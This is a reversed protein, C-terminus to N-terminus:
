KELLAMHLLEEELQQWVLQEAQLHTMLEKRGTAETMVQRVRTQLTMLYPLQDVPSPMIGLEIDEFAYFANFPFVASVLETYQEILKQRSPPFYDPLTSMAGFTGLIHNARLLPYTCSSVIGARSEPGIQRPDRYNQVIQPQGSSVVRGPVTEAGLFITQQEVSGGWPSVGVGMVARLSRVKKGDAPPICQTIFIAVSRHQPDLHEFAQHLILQCTPWVAQNQALSSLKSLVEQYFAPPVAESLADGESVGSSIEPFEQGILPLLLARQQPLISLLHRLSELRPSSKKEVWRTLTTPDVGLESAIKQRQRPEKILTGLVTRWSQPEPM